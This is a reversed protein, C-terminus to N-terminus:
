RFIVFLIDLLFYAGFGTALSAIVIMGGIVWDMAFRATYVWNDPLVEQADNFEMGLQRRALAFLGGGILLSGFCVYLTGSFTDASMKLLALLEPQPERFLFLIVLSAIAGSLSVNMAITVTGFLVRAGVSVPRHIM